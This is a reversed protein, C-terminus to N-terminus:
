RPYKLVATGNQLGLGIGLLNDGFRYPPERKQDSGSIFPLTRTLLNM